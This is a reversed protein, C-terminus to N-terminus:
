VSTSDKGRGKSQLKDGSHINTQTRTKETFSKATILKPVTESNQRLCAKEARDNQRIDSNLKAHSTGAIENSANAKRKRTLPAENFKM